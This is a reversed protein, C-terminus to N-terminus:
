TQKQCMTCVSLAGTKTDPARNTVPYFLIRGSLFFQSRIFSFVVPYFFKRGYLVFKQGNVIISTDPM